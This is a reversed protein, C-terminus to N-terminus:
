WYVSGAILWCFIERTYKGNHHSKEKKITYQWKFNIDVLRNRKLFQLKTTPVIKYKEKEEKEEEAKDM